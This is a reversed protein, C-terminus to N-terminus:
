TWCKSSPWLWHSLSEQLSSCFTFNNFFLVLTAGLNIGDQNFEEPLDQNCGTRKEDQPEEKLRRQLEKIQVDEEEEWLCDTAFRHAYRQKAVVQRAEPLCVELADKEWILSIRGCRWLFLAWKERQIIGAGTTRTTETTHASHDQLTQKDPNLTASVGGLICAASELLARNSTEKQFHFCSHTMHPSESKRFIHPFM